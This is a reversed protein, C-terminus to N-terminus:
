ELHCLRTGGDLGSGEEAQIKWLGIKRGLEDLAGGQAKTHRNREYSQSIVNETQEMPLLSYLCRLRHRNPVMCQFMVGAQNEM